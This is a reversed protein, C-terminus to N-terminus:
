QVLCLLLHLLLLLGSMNIFLDEETGEDQELGGAQAGVAEPVGECQDELHRSPCWLRCKGAM